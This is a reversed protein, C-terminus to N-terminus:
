KPQLFSEFKELDFCCVCQEASLGGKRAALVGFHIDHIGGTSHADPNVSLLVGQELAYEIWTHDLDLRLPNANIEIAVKYKACADIIAKHDIPYGERALLLRGTPHGLMTTYPNAIAALL